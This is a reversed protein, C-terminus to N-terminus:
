TAIALRRSAVRVFFRGGDEEALELLAQHTGRSFAARALGGRVRCELRGTAPDMGLAGDTLLEESGDDLAVRIEAQRHDVALRIVEFAPGEIAVPQREGGDVVFAGEAEFVLHAKFYRLSREHAVPYEGVHWTGDAKVSLGEPVKFLRL